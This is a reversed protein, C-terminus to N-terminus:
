KLEVNWGAIKQQILLADSIDASGDGDVDANELNIAVNWGATYQQIMLVDSVDIEGSEDADGPTHAAKPYAKM